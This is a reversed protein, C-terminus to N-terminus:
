RAPLLSTLTIYYGWATCGISLLLPRNCHGDEVAEDVCGDFSMRNREMSALFAERDNM